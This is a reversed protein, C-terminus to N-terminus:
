PATPHAWARLWQGSYELPKDEPGYAKYRPYSSNIYGKTGRVLMRVIEGIEREIEFEFLRGQAECPLVTSNNSGGM